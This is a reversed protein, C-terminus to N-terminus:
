VSLVVRQTPAVKLTDGVTTFPQLDSWVPPLPLTVTVLRVAVRMRPVNVAVSPGMGFVPAVPGIVTAFPLKSM